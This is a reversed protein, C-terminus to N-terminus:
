NGPTSSLQATLAEDINVAQVKAVALAMAKDMAEKKKEFIAALAARREPRIFSLLADEIATQAEELVNGDLLCAFGDETINREKAQEDCLLWLAQVMKEDDAQIAAVAKGDHANAFDLDAASKLKRCTGITFDVRWLKGTIDKFTTM